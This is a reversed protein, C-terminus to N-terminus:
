PRAPVAPPTNSVAPFLRRLLGPALARYITDHRLEAHPEYHWSLGPASAGRLVEALQATFPAINDEDASAFVIRVPQRPQAKLLEPAARLLAQNNWWLSPSLAICTSFLAEPGICSELVFLGALSEGIIAREGSSRYRADVDKFLEMKIFRRFAASGGVRPAIKRDEAVETPGTMDRRRETNEIGVIILPRMQGARIAADVTAAVHPFDEQLGGDPMYLVPYRTQTSAYDPPLYVTLRRKEKLEASDLEFQQHPPVAEAAPAAVAAAAAAGAPTPQMGSAPRQGQEVWAVLSDIAAVIQGIDFGLHQEGPTYQQVFHQERGARRVAVAYSNTAAASVLPDHVTQLALFPKGLKGGPAYNRRLFDYAKAEAAYRRVGANLATDDGSGAYLWHANGVPNGGALKQVRALMFRNVAIQEAVAEPKIGLLAALATRATPKGALAAELQGVSGADPMRAEAVPAIAGLVGPLYYDFAALNAFAQEFLADGGGLTGALSLGGDYATDPQELAYAVGLGGMSQGIAYTRRPKGITKGFHKRLWESDRYAAEINWDPRAYGSQALAFGRQLMVVRGGGTYPQDDFRVPEPTNGHFSVILAGNWNAPVDIRWAAGEHEGTLIRPSAATDAVAATAAWCLILLLLASVRKLM